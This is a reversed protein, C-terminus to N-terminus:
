DPVDNELDDMNDYELIPIRYDENLWHGLDLQACRESCFPRYKRRTTKGCYSCSSSKDIKKIDMEVINETPNSIKPKM